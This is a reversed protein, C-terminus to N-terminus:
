SSPDILLDALAYAGESCAGTRNALLTKLTSNGRLGECILKLGVSKIPNGSLDLLTLSKNTILNQAISMAGETSIQNNQLRLTTLNEFSPFDRINCDEM